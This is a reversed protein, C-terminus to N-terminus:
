TVADVSLLDGLALRLGPPAKIPQLIPKQWFPYKDGYFNPFDQRWQQSILARGLIGSYGDLHATAATLYAEITDDEDGAEVRSHNKMDSLTVPLVSPPSVLVPKLM